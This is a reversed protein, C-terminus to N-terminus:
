KPSSFVLSIELVKMSTPNPNCFPILSQLLKEKDFKSIWVQEDDKGYIVWIFNEDFVFGGPFIVHKNIKKYLQDHYYEKDVIPYPSIRTIEFPSQSSFTYAGMFYHLLPYNESQTTCVIKSSHFFALYEKENILLGPTGGRLEGWNWQNSGVTNAIPYYKKNKLPNVILVKHPLLSYSLLLKNNYVFPVWNKEKRKPDGSDYFLNEINGAIFKVGDFFLKSIFMKRPRKKKPKINDNFILYLEKNLVFLRADESRSPISPNKTRTNIFHPQEIPNFNNDLWLLGIRSTKDVLNFDRFSMLYIDGKLPHTWKIISPNFAEPFGPVHIQKTELLFDQEMKELDIAAKANNFLFIFFVLFLKLFHRDLTCFSSIKSTNTITILM